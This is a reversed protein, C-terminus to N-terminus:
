ARTRYGGVVQAVVAGVWFGLRSALMEIGWGLAGSGCGVRSVEGIGVIVGVWGGVHWGPRLGYRGSLQASSLGEVVIRYLLVGWIRGGEMGFIFGFDFGVEGVTVSYPILM